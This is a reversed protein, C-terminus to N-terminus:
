GLRICEKCRQRGGDGAVRDDRKIERGYKCDDHDHYVSRHTPPYEPNTTHFPSVKMSLSRGHTPRSLGNGHRLVGRPRATLKSLRGHCDSSSEEPRCQWTFKRIYSITGGEERAEISLGGEPTRIQAQLPLLMPIGPDYPSPTENM